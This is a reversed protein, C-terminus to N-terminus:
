KRRLFGFHRDWRKSPDENQEVTKRIAAEREELQLKMEELEARQQFVRARQISMEVEAKRLKEELQEKLSSVDNNGYDQFFENIDQSAADHSIVKAEPERTPDPNGQAEESCLDLPINKLEKAIPGILISASSSSPSNRQRRLELLKNEFNELREQIKEIDGRMHQIEQRILMDASFDAAIDCNDDIPLKSEAFM